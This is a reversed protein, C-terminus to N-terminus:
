LRRFISSTQQLATVYSRILEEFNQAYREPQDTRISHSLQAGCHAIFQRIIEVKQEWSNPAVFRDFQDRLYREVSEAKLRDALIDLIVRLGGNTGDHADNYASNIDGGRRRYEQTLIEKARGAAETRSLTGGMAVCSTFHYIYYDSIIDTFENFSGITNRGLSYRMRVEDHVNAVNRAISIENIASLLNQIPSM